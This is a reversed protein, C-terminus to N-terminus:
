EAALRYVPGELSVAYVHGAADEGFSSLAPVHLGAASDDRAEGGRLAPRASFSRIEGACYDGYVYRGLLSPVGRDRVVYGGTVACNSEELAYELVPPRAGPADQDENFRETGEFASWGFNIDPRLAAVRAASAADVEELSDQGVDGTWLDGSARDFSFRWPNRLGYAVVQTGGGGSPDMRLIKGLPSDLDQATREPDGAGGGDGTGIYLLRDPGFQLQGGNHNPAFDEVRLLERASQPDAAGADDGAEYEVVRADGAPDTFYAYMLGSTEYDPAFAVSLLGQESGECTISGSLDLFARGDGGESSVRVIRGCREVVYLHSPDSEPQAVYVPEEFNGIEELAVGGARTGGDEAPAATTAAGGDGGGCGAVM